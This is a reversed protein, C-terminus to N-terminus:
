PVTVRYLQGGYHVVYLEGAADEGFSAISLGTVFGAGMVMTPQTDVSIHWLAGTIFDGFVYRGVLGPIAMGRYVYGGTVSRGEDRGYEAVPPLLGQASGCALGTVLTGERCRWGYNGGVVVRDIEERAGQGVDGVWLTGGNRDFSWRWPNRFGSAYIEPCPLPGTGGGGCLSSSNMAFPNSPPIAYGAAPSVDIRLMKGLLTIMSQGNGIPPHQDNAGGGDGMGIYLFGDPGFAVQGGNHNTEPQSISLLIRETNPDLNGGVDVGFESIRSFRGAASDNTYSLYVRPNTPFDPHFAMGLLGMEGGSTVLNTIDAFVSSTPVQPTNAFVRVVGAQEVVFWRTADGPAQLMAVPQTFNLAPFVRQVRLHPPPLSTPLEGGGDGCGVLLLLAAGLLGARYSRARHLGVPDCGDRAVADAVLDYGGANM